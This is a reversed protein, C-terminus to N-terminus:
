KDAFLLLFDSRDLIEVMGGGVIHTKLPQQKQVTENLKSMKHEDEVSSIPPCFRFCAGKTYTALGILGVVCLHICSGADESEKSSIYTHTNM